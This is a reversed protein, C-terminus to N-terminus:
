QVGDLLALASECNDLIVQSVNKPGLQVVSQRLCENGTPSLM